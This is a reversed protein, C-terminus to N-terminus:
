ACPESYGQSLWVEQGDEESKVACHRPFGKGDVIRRGALPSSLDVSTERPIGMALCGPFAYSSNPHNAAYRAYAPDYGTLLSLAVTESDETVEVHDLVWCPSLGGIFALRIRTESEVYAKSWANVKPDLTGPCATVVRIERGAPCVPDLYVSRSSADSNMRLASVTLGGTVLVVILAIIMGPRPGHSNDAVTERTSLHFGGRTPTVSAPM